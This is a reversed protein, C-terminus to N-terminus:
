QLREERISALKARQKDSLMRGARLQQLLSEIYDCEWTTLSEGHEDLEQLDVWSSKDVVVSPIAPVASM